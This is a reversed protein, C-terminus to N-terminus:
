AWQREEYSQFHRNKRKHSYAVAHIQKLPLPILLGKLVKISRQVYFTRASTILLVRLAQTVGKLDDSARQIGQGNFLPSELSDAENNKGGERVAELARDFCDKHDFLRNCAGELSLLGGAREMM